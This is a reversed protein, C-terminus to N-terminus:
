SYKYNRKNQHLTLNSQGKVAMTKYETQFYLTLAAKHRIEILFGKSATLLEQNLSSEMM